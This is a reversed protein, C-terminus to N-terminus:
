ASRDEDGVRSEIVEYEAEVAGRPEQRGVPRGASPGAVTFGGQISFLRAILRFGIRAVLVLLFLVLFFRVMSSLPYAPRSEPRSSRAVM